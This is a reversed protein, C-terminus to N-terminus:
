LARWGLFNDGRGRIYLFFIVFEVDKAIFIAANNVANRTWRWARGDRQGRFRRPQAPQRAGAPERPICASCTSACEASASAPCKSGRSWTGGGGGWADGADGAGGRREGGASAHGQIGGAAAQTAGRGGGEAEEEGRGTRGGAGGTQAASDPQGPLNQHEEGEHGPRRPAALTQRQTRTEEM